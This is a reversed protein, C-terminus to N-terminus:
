PFRNWLLSLTVAAAALLAGALAAVLRRSM